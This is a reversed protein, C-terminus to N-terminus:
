KSEPKVLRTKGTLLEQMMGQKIQRTKTLRQELTQIEGDMDCLITAIEAQEDKSPLLIKMESIMEKRVSDVSSKATMSMIRDYFNNSFFLYFFYGNLNEGFGHMLYVRQHFDFKGNIYHFIKGTGVGDGATLVAEGDFSFSNIREVTQSRVFFPYLGDDIRDQTNRGGTTISVLNGIKDVEWGEPIEGLESKKYGKPTGDENKAFQPLRKKGTLLTQMTATKIAQKKAILKEIENILADVDSLAKSIAIQEKLPPFPVQINRILETNLNPQGNGTAVSDHLQQTKTNIYHVLFPKHGSKQNIIAAIGDNACCKIGLIKAVGLTAGSNSIILTDSQLTRSQKSGLETLYTATDTVYMKSKPINTLSAVTLWPIFSGNFFKPDGAPRPSGGRVVDGLDGLSKCDWDAPIIGVETLKYGKPVLQTQESDVMM